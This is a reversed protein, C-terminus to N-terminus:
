RGRAKADARRAMEEEIVERVVQEAVSAHAPFAAVRIRISIIDDNSGLRVKGLFASQKDVKVFMNCGEDIRSGLTHLLTQLDDDDLRSFFLSVGESHLVDAELIELPNGHVGETSIRRLDGDGVVNRLAEEVRGRVETSHVFARAHLGRFRGKM